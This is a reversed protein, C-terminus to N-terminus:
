KKVSSKNVVAQLCLGVLFDHQPPSVARVIGNCFGICRVRTDFNVAVNRPEGELLVANKNCNSVIM